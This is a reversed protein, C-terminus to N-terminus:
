ATQTQSLQESARHTNHTIVSYATINQDKGKLSVNSVREIEFYNKVYRYTAEGIVVRCPNEFYKPAFGEKDLSELRSATNVTDGIVTYELRKRTGLSGIMVPGTTIGVRMGIMPLNMNQWRRNLESLTVAMDLACHVASIADQRIEDESKRPIPVGFIAMISDGIYKNITGGHHLVKQAIQEMYENLWSMLEKPDRAESISTFNVLDTFMVTATLLQPLPRGGALFKDRQAWITKAVEPSVHQGFLQMLVARDRKETSLSAALVFMVVINNGVSIFTLDYLAHLKMFLCAGIIVALFPGAFFVVIGWVPRIGPLIGISALGFALLALLEWWRASPPRRLRSGELINEVFQAQIEVGDMRSNAPTAAVDSVGVATAGVIAVQGAFAGPKVEGNFVAAASIRRAAYVRSYYLRMRGDGDTPIFSDGIQV